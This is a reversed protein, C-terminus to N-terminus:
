VTFVALVAIIGDKATHAQNQSKRIRFLTTIKFCDNNATANWSDIFQARVGQGKKFNLNTFNVLLCSQWHLWLAAIKLYIEIAPPSRYLM